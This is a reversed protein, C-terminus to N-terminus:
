EVIDVVTRTDPGVLAAQGTNAVFVRYREITPVQEIVAQPM